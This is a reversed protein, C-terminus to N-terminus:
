CHADSVRGLLVGELRWWSLLLGGWGQEGHSSLAVESEDPDGEFDIKEVWCSELLIAISM